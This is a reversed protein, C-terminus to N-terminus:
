ESLLKRIKLQEGLSNNSGTNRIKTEPQGLIGRISHISVKMETTIVVLISKKNTTMNDEEPLMGRIGINM